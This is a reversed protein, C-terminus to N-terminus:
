EDFIFGLPGNHNPAYVNLFLCDEATGNSGDGPDGNGFPSATQPCHHGFTTANQVGFSRAIPQPSKWRRNGTVPEAYRIGLFERVAGSTDLKGQFTGVPAVILAPSAIAPTGWAVLGALLASCLASGLRAIPALKEANM